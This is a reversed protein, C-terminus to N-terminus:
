EGDKWWDAADQDERQKQELQWVRESQDMYMRHWLETEEANRRLLPVLSSCAVVLGVTAGIITGATFFIVVDIPM